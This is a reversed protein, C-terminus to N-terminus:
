PGETRVSCVLAVGKRSLLLFLDFFGYFVLQCIGVLM